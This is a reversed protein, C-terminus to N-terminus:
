LIVVKNSKLTSVIINGNFYAINGGKRNKGDFANLKIEEKFDGNEDFVYFKDGNSNLFYFSCDIVITSGLLGEYRKLCKFSVIDYFTMSPRGQSEECICALNNIIEINFPRREIEFSVHSKLECDFRCIRNRAYNCVYLYDKTLSFNGCCSSLVDSVSYRIFNMELDTLILRKNKPECIYFKNLNNTKMMLAMIQENNIKYFTKIIKFKKDYISICRTQTRDLGCIAIKENPLGCFSLIEISFEKEKFHNLKLQDRLNTKYNIEGLWEPYFDDYDLTIKWIIIFRIKLYQAQLLFIKKM